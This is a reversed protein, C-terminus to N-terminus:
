CDSSVLVQFGDLYSRLKVTSQVVALLEKEVTSYNREAPTLLRSAYEIPKEEYDNADTCLAFPQSFDPQQLVPAYTLKQKLTNFAQTEAYGFCFAAGKKLFNFLRTCTPPKIRNFAAVKDEDPIIGSPSIHYGLYIVLDHVFVCKERLVHLNFLRLRNFITSTIAM